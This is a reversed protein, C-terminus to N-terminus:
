PGSGRCVPDWTEKDLLVNRRLIRLKLAAKRSKNM